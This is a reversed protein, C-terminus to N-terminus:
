WIIYLWAMVAQLIAQWAFHGGMISTVASAAALIFIIFGLLRRHIPRLRFLGLIGAFLMVLGTAVSLITGISLISEFNLGLLNKAFSLPAGIGWVIYVLSIIIHILRKAAKKM